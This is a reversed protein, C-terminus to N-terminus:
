FYFVAGVFVLCATFFVLHSETACVDTAVRSSIIVSVSWRCGATALSNAMM